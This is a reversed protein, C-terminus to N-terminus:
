RDKWFRIDETLVQRMEDEDAEDLSALILRDNVAKRALKLLEEKLEWMDDDWM